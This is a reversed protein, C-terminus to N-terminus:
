PRLPERSWSDTCRLGFIGFRITDRSTSGYPGCGCLGRDLGVGWENRPLMAWTRTHEEVHRYQGEVRETRTSSASRVGVLALTAAICNAAIWVAPKM